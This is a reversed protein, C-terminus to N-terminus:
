RKKTLDIIVFSPTQQVVTYEKMVQQTQPDAFNVSVWYTAGRDILEPIPLEVYPWGRRKTQYLFAADGNYPAIVLADHPAVSDLAAGAEMIEPHNVKYYERAQLASVILGIGLCFFLVSRLLVKGFEKSNWMVICGHALALCIFPITIAQYYDHRVNATAVLSVYIFAGLLCMHIFWRLANRRHNRVELPALVGFVFPVLGWVGLILRGLREGFIWNWFAPKFRIDDGNFAWKYFPIGEPHQQLNLRWLFFPVIIIAVAFLLAKNTIAKKFGYRSIALYAMPIGFFAIYPKLLMALAFSIASIWLWYKKDEDTFRVFYYLAIVAFMITMPEPLIVRTFYINYPLFSYFAATILGGWKGLLRQGLLFLYLTTILACAIAVLRGWVEFSHVFHSLPFQKALVAHIVNFIPFEVFRYGSPNYLGTQISSIDYYRPTLINIGEEMYIRSVAATDAQRWSHWDALPNDIKYLRVGFAAVLIVLLFVYEIYKVTKVRAVLNNTLLYLNSTISMILRIAKKM